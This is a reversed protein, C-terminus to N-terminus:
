ANKGRLSVDGCDITIIKKAGDELLIRGYCDFDTVRGFTKKGDAGLISVDQGITCSVQKYEDLLSEFGGDAAILTSYSLVRRVTEAAIAEASLNKETIMKMSVALAEIDPSFSSNAINIGIGIIVASGVSELLIGCLKKGNHLIDNPWKIRIGDAYNALTKQVAVAAAIVYRQSFSPSVANKILLSMCVTGDDDTWSRGIRGRGGTQKDCVFLVPKLFAGASSDSAFQKAFRKADDNTSVTEHRHVIEFDAGAYESLKKLDLKCM